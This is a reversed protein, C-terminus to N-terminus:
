GHGVLRGSHTYQYAALSAVAIGLLSIIIAERLGFTPGGRKLRRKIRRGLAIPVRLLAIRDFPRPQAISSPSPRQVAVLTEAFETKFGSRQRRFWVYAGDIPPPPPITDPDLLNTLFPVLAEAARASFGMCHAGIIDSAELNDPDSAEYGGYAIDCDESPHWTRAAKTFDVDDELILVSRGAAAAAQLINLHALFSGKYGVSQFPAKDEVVVGAVFQVRPDDALGIRRLEAIMDKRRDPRSPLNVIRIQDFGSFVTM